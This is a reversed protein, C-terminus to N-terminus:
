REAIALAMRCAQLQMDLPYAFFYGRGESDYALYLVGDDLEMTVTKGGYMFDVRRQRSKALAYAATSEFVRALRYVAREMDLTDTFLYNEPIIKCEGQTIMDMIVNTKKIGDDDEKKPIPQELMYAELPSPTWVYTDDPCLVAMAELLKGDDSLICHARAGSPKGDKLIDAYLRGGDDGESWDGPRTNETLNGFAARGASVARAIAKALCRTLTAIARGTLRGRKDREIAIM